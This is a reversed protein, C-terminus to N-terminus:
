LSRHKDSRRWAFIIGAILGVTLLLAIFAVRLNVLPFKRFSSGGGGGGGANATENKQVENAGLLTNKGDISLKRVRPSGTTSPPTWSFELVYIDGARTAFVGTPFYPPDLRYLVGVKGDNSVRLVRRNGADAVYIAGASDVALGSIIDDAGGFLTPKDESTRATLDKAVTTVRGDMTVRRVEAGDTLYLNGDPALVMAHVNSFRAATGKGDANGYAGGALTSVIGDPTRRLLLTQTKTHNNQEISYMNGARDRWTSVGSEPRGTLQQLYTQRGDPTMKWVGNVYTNTEPEYSYDPGYLNDQDDISLEHVHRGGVGARFISLKGSRDIKWVTELDSFYVIGTSSVVIGWAPHAFSSSAALTLGALIFLLSSYRSLKRPIQALM